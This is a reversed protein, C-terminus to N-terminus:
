SPLNSRNNLYVIMSKVNNVGEPNTSILQGYVPTNILNKVFIKKKGNFHGISLTDKCEKCNVLELVSPGRNFFLGMYDFGIRVVEVDKKCIKCFM